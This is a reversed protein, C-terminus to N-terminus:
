WCNGYSSSLWFRGWWRSCPHLINADWQGIYSVVYGILLLYMTSIVEICGM